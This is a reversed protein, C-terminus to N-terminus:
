ERNLEQSLEVILQHVLQIAQQQDNGTDGHAIADVADVTESLDGNIVFTFYGDTLALNLEILATQMRRRIDETHHKFEGGYRNRYREQWVAFSPPLLFVAKVNPSIQKYEEVGQVEIDTMAIKSDAKAQEIEAVSTGYLNTAYIKAEIFAHQDVMQNARSWDIFHYDVGDQELIGKNERPARTTHSVIHHYQDRRDLLKQKITDKGAGSIGVLLLIPTTEVLQRAHDDPKYDQLKQMVQQQEQNM